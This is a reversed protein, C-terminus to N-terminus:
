NNVITALKLVRSSIQLGAKQVAKLNIVMEIMGKDMKLLVMGGNEIFGKNEGITLIPLGRLKLLFNKTAYNEPDSLFLVKCQDLNNGRTLHIVRIAKQGSPKKEIQTFADHVLTDGLVCLNIVNNSDKLANSSWETFRAFNLTRIAQITYEQAYNAALQNSFAFLAIGITMKKIKETIRTKGAINLQM